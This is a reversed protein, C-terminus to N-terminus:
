IFKGTVGSEYEQFIFDVIFEVFLGLYIGAFANLDDVGCM